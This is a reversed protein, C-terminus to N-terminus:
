GFLGRTGLHSELEGESTEGPSHSDLIVTVRFDITICSQPM